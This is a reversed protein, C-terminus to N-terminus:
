LLLIIFCISYVLVMCVKDKPKSWLLKRKDQVQKFQQVNVMSPNLYGPLNIKKAEEAQKEQMEKMHKALREEVEETTVEKPKVIFFSCRFIPQLLNKIPPLISREWHAFDGFFCDTPTFNVIHCQIKLV